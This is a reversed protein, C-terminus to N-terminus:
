ESDEKTSSSLEIVVISEEKSRNVLSIIDHIVNSGMSIFGASMIQGVYDWDFNVGVMEFFDLKAGFAFVLGFILSLVLKIDLQQLKLEGLVPFAKTLWEVIRETVGALFVWALLPEM